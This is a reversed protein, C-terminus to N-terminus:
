AVLNGFTLSVGSPFDEFAITTPFKSYLISWYESFKLNEGM